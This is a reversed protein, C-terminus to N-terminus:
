AGLLDDLVPGYAGVSISLHGHEDRLQARAGPVHRALWEGHAFPVFQDQRGQWITVTRTIAGLDFDWDSLHAIDDDFWGWVGHALGTRMNEAFHEAFAGSLASRDVPSLLGDLTAAIASPDAGAIGAAEHELHALLQKAGAEAAAFEELNEEGMGAFWDLGEANRPAVGGITAAAIVRDPLLATCALAHPGGGSVGVTFFEEIELEDAIATVDTACDAVTRGEHRDSGAYGPRSYSVHRLGRSAGADVLPAFLSGASPTGNHFIVTRGDDPGAIEVDLRRGRPGAISITRPTFRTPSM